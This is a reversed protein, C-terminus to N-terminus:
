TKSNNGCNIASSILAELIYFSVHVKLYNASDLIYFGDGNTAPDSVNHSKASLKTGPPPAFEFANSIHSELTSSDTFCLDMPIFGLANTSLFHLDLM